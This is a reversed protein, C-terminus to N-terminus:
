KADLRAHIAAIGQEIRDYIGHKAKGEPEDVGNLEESLGELMNGIEAWENKNDEALRQRAADIRAQLDAHRDVIDM